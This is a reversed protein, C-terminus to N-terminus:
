DRWRVGDKEDTSIAKLKAEFPVAADGDVRHRLKEFHVEFRAHKPL